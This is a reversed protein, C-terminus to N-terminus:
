KSDDENGSLCEEDDGIKPNDLDGNETVVDGGEEM